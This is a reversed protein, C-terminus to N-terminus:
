EVDSNKKGLHTKKLVPPVEVPAGQPLVVAYAGWKRSMAESVHWCLSGLKNSM